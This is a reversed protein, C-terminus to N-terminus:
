NRRATIVTFAADIAFAGDQERGAAAFLARLDAACAAWGDGLRSRASLMPGYSGELFAAFAEPSAARFTNVGPTFTLGTVRRGLLATVREPNGWSPPPSAFAPPAPLHAGLVRLLRGVLGDPTWNVLGIQGGPRTVRLLEDAAVQHRPAFQVGFISTTLDFSAEDFPLREADGQRWTIAHEAPRSAYERVLAIELLEDALDLGTVCAGAAALRLALNGTGTAVDLADLGDLPGLRELLARSPAADVQAAVAPYDGSAWMRRHGDKLVAPTITPSPTM